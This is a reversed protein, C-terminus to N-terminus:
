SKKRKNMIEDSISSGGLLIKNIKRLQYFSDKGLSIENFQAPTLSCFEAEPLSLHQFPNLKPAFYYLDLGGIIARIILM